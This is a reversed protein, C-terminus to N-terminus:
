IAFSARSYAGAIPTLPQSDFAQLRYYKVKQYYNLTLPHMKGSGARGVIRIDFVRM